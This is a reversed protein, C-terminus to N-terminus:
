AYDQMALGEGRFLSPLPQNCSVLNNAHVTFMIAACFVILKKRALLAELELLM